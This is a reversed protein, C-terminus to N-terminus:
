ATEGARKEKPVVSVLGDIERIENSVSTLHEDFEEESMDSVDTEELEFVLTLDYEVQNSM